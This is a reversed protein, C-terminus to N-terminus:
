KWGTSCAIAIVHADEERDDYTAVRVSCADSDKTSERYCIRRALSEDKTPLCVDLWESGVKKEIYYLNM